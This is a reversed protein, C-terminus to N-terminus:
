IEVLIQQAKDKANIFIEIAVAEEPTVHQSFVDWMINLQDLLEMKKKNIMEEAMPNGEKIEFKLGDIMISESDRIPVEEVAQFRVMKYPKGSQRAISDAIPRLAGMRKPTTGILPIWEDKSKFTLIGQEGEDEMIFAYIENISKETM